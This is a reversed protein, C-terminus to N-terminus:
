RRGGKKRFTTTTTFFYPFYGRFPKSGKRVGIVKEFVQDGDDSTGLFRVEGIKPKKMKRYM